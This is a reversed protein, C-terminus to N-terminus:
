GFTYIIIIIPMLIDDLSGIEKESLAFNIPDKTIIEGKKQSERMFM